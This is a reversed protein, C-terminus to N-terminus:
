FYIRVRSCRKRLSSSDLRQHCWAAPRFLVTEADTPFKVRVPSNYEAVPLRMWYALSYGLFVTLILCAVGLGIAVPSQKRDM